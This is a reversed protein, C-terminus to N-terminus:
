RQLIYHTYPHPVKKHLMNIKLNTYIYVQLSNNIWDLMEGKSLYDANNATAVIENM